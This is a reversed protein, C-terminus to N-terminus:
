SYETTSSAMSVPIAEENGVELGVESVEDGYEIDEDGAVDDDDDLSPVFLAAADVAHHAGPESSQM